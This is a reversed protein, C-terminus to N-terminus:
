KSYYQQLYTTPKVKENILLQRIGATETLVLKGHTQTEFKELREVLSTEDLRFVKGPSLASYSLENLSITAQNLNNIYNQVSFLFIEDPLTLRADRDLFFLEEGPNHSVLNLETLPCDMTDEYNTKNNEYPEGAYSHIFTNIDRFITNDSIKMNLKNVIAQLQYFIENRTFQTGSLHNFVYYATTKYSTNTVYLYHILWLTGTDELYTDWPAQENGLFLLRGIESVQDVYKGNIRSTSILQCATCWYKISSVMNKGVGLIVLSDDRTFLGPNRDLYIVGKSLWTNRFSFTQHGSLKLSDM